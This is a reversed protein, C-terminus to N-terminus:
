CGYPTSRVPAMSCRTENMQSLTHDLNTRQSDDIPNPNLVAAAIVAVAAAVLGAIMIQNFGSRDTSRTQAPSKPTDPLRALIPYLAPDRAAAARAKYRAVQQQLLAINDGQCSQAKSYWSQASSQDARVGSGAAYLDGMAMMALCDGGDAAKKYSVMAQAYWYPPDGGLKGTNYEIGLILWGRPDGANAAMTAWYTARQASVPTKQDAYADALLPMAPVYNAGAAQQLLQFSRAKDATVGRGEHYLIALEYSAQADGQDSAQQYWYAAGAYDPQATGDPALTSYQHLKGLAGQAKVNGTDAKATLARKLQDIGSENSGPKGLM